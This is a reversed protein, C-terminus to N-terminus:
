DATRTGNEKLEVIVTLRANDTGARAATLAIPSGIVQLTTTYLM